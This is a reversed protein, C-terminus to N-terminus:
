ENGESESKQSVGYINKISDSYGDLWKSTSLSNSFTVEATEDDVTIEKVIQDPTYRWSWSTMETIEYVGDPVNKIEITGTGIIAVEFSIPTNIKELEKSVVKFIFPQEAEVQEGAKIIKLTGKGIAETGLTLCIYKNEQQTGGIGAEWTNRANKYREVNVVDNQTAININNRLGKLYETDGTSYDEFWGTATANPGDLQMGNVNPLSLVTANANAYVDDAAFDATNGFIGVSSGTAANMSFKSKVTAGAGVYIGGGVGSNNDDNYATTVTSEPEGLAKNYSINGGSVSLDSGGIIYLGGGNQAENGTITGNGSVICNGDEGTHYIGGGNNTAKNGSITGNEIKTSFKSVTTNKEDQVIYLGAGNVAKNGTISIGDTGGFTVSTNKVYVAGGKETITGNATETNGNDKLTGGSLNCTGGEVYVAGGNIAKSNQITGGTMEFAGDTLYIAGGNEASCNQIIGDSITASGNQVWVAGGDERLFTFGNTKADKNDITGGTMLFSCEENAGAAMIVQGQVIGKKIEVHAAGIKGPTIPQQVPNKPDNLYPDDVITNIGGGGISGAYVTVPNSSDAEYIKLTATGGSGQTRLINTDEKYKEKDRRFPVGATGGGISVSASVVQTDSYQSYTSPDTKKLESIYGTWDSADFERITNVTGSVSKATVTGGSITIDAKAGNKNVSSGGGIATGGVSEAYVTGGSINVEASVTYERRSSGSGIAVAPMVASVMQMDMPNKIAVSYSERTGLIALGKNYAYVTGGSIHVRAAGGNSGDGIGGGIATGNSATVATITGGKITVGGFGCGGGGIATCNDLETAGAYIIGGQFVLGPAFNPKNAGGIASCFHNYAKGTKLNAVTLTAELEEEANDFILQTGLVGSIEGTDKNGGAGTEVDYHINGFRNDGKLHIFAKTTLNGPRFSVGGSTRYRIATQQTKEADIYLLEGSKDYCDDNQFGSWVNDITVQYETEIEESGELIIRYHQFVDEEFSKISTTNRKDKGGTASRGVKQAESDWNKIVANVDTNNTIYDGWTKSSDTPHKVREYKPLGDGNWETDTGKSQFIYYQNNEDHNGSVEIGEGIYGHYETGTIIVDGYYLDFYIYGKPRLEEMNDLNELDEPDGELKNGSNPLVALTDLLYSTDEDDSEPDLEAIYERLEAIEEATLALLTEPKNNMYELVVEYMESTSSTSMLIDKLSEEAPIYLECNEEHVVNGDEDEVANCKECLPAETEPAAYQSCTELHGESQNCEECGTVEDPAVYKSCTELHGETQKCEECEAVVEEQNVYQSCTELHGEEAQCEECVSSESKFGDNEPAVYKSCTELHGETQQCEECSEETEEADVTIVDTSQAAMSILSNPVCLAVCLLLALLRKKM